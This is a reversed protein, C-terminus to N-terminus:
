VFNNRVALVFVVVLTALAPMFIKRFAFDRNMQYSMVMNEIRAMVRTEFFPKFDTIVEYLM